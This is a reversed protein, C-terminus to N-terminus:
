PVANGYGQVVVTSAAGTSPTLTIQGSVSGGPDVPAFKIMLNCTKGEAVGAACTGQSALSFYPTSSSVAVTPSGPVGFNTVALPLTETSGDNVSGFNLPSDKEASVGGSASGSLEIVRLSATSPSTLTLHNTHVGVVPPSFQIPLVCSQGAPVGKSCTNEDTELVQYNPADVKATFTLTSTGRNTITLSEGESDGFTMDPFIVHDTSVLIPNPFLSFLFAAGSYVGNVKEDPAGVIVTDGDIAPSSFPYSNGNGGVLDQSPWASAAWGAAPQSYVFIQRATGVVLHSSDMAVFDGFGGFPLSPPAKLEVTETGDLWGTAPKLFLDVVGGDDGDAVAIRDGYVAVSIGFHDDEYTPNAKTLTATPALTGSWGNEPKVFVTAFGTNGLVVTDGSIAVPFVDDISRATLQASHTTTTAWGGGPKVFVYGQGHVNVAITDGDIAVSQGFAAAGEHTGILQATETMNQWGTAPKVFIYVKEVAGVVVTDGSIAVSTGFTSEGDSPTLTATETGSTWGSAQKEFVYAGIGTGGDFTSKVAVATNGSVAVSSGLQDYQGPNSDTLRAALNLSTSQAFAFNFLTSTSFLALILFQERRM